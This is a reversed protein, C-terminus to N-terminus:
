HVCRVFATVYGYNYRTDNFATTVWQSRGYLMSGTPRVYQMESLPVVTNFFGGGLAVDGNYCTSTTSVSGYPPYIRTQSGFVTYVSGPLNVACTVFATFSKDGFSSAYEGAIWNNSYDPYSAYPVLDRAYPYNSDFGGGTPVGGWPCYLTGTMGGGSPVWVSTSYSYSSLGSVGSACMAYAVISLTASPHSNVAMVRWIYTSIPRNVWVNLYRGESPNTNWGGGLLVTGKPCSAQAIAPQGPGVVVYSYAPTVTIAQAQTAATLLALASLAGALMRTM